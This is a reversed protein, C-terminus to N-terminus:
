REVHINGRERKCYKALISNLKESDSFGFKDAISSVFVFGSNVMIALAEQLTCAKNLSYVLSIQRLETPTYSPVGAEKCRRKLMKRIRDTTSSEKCTDFYFKAEKSVGLEKLRKLYTIIPAYLMESLPIIRRVKKNTKVLITNPYISLHELRLEAIEKASLFATIIISITAADRIGAFTEDTTTKRVLTLLQEIQRMKE